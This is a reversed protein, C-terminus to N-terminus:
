PHIKHEIYQNNDCTYGKLTIYDVSPLPNINYWSKKKLTIHIDKLCCEKDNLKGCLMPKCTKECIKLTCQWKPLANFQIKYEQKKGIQEFKIGYAMSSEIMNLELRDDMKGNVRNATIQSQCIKVKHVIPYM